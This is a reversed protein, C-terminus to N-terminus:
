YRELIEMINLQGENLLISEIFQKINMIRGDKLISIRNQPLFSFIEEIFVKLTSLNGNPLKINKELLEPEFLTMISKIDALKGSDIDM